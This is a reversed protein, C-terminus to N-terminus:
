QIRKDKGSIEYPGGPRGAQKWPGAFAPPFYSAFLANEISVAPLRLFDQPFTWLDQFVAYLFNCLSYFLGHYLLPSPTMALGLLLYLLFFWLIGPHRCLAYM